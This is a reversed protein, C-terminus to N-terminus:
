RRWRTHQRGWQPQHRAEARAFAPADRHRGRRIGAGGGGIALLLVIVVIGPLVPNPAAAHYAAFAQASETAAEEDREEEFVRGPVPAPAVVSSFGTPPTPRPTLTTVPFLAALPPPTPASLPLIV